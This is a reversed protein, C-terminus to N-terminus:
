CALVFRLGSVIWLSVMVRDRVKVGVSAMQMCLVTAVHVAM